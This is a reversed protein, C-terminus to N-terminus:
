PHFGCDLVRTLPKQVCWAKECVLQFADLLVRLCFLRVKIIEYDLLAALRAATVEQRKARTANAIEEEPFVIQRYESM